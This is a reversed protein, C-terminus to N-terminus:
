KGNIVGKMGADSMPEGNFSRYTSSSDAKGNIITYSIVARGVGSKQIKLWQTEIERDPHRQGAREGSLLVKGRAFCKAHALEVLEWGNKHALKVMGALSRMPDDFEEAAQTIVPKEHNRYVQDNQAAGAAAAEARRADRWEHLRAWMAATGDPDPDPYKLVTRGDLHVDAVDDWLSM